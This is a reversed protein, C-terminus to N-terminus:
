RDQKLFDELSRPVEFPPFLNGFEGMCDLAFAIKLLSELAVLGYQEFRQISGFSVGSKNALTQQSMGLQKRRAKARAAIQGAMESPLAPVDFPDSFDM